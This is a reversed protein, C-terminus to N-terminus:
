TFVGICCDLFVGSCTFETNLRVFINKCHESHYHAQVAFHCGLQWELVTATHSGGVCGSIVSQRM